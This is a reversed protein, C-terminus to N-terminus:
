LYSFIYGKTHPRKGQCVLSVKPESLCLDKAAHRISDYSKGTNLCIVPTSNSQKISKLWKSDGDVTKYAKKTHIRYGNYVNHSPKYQDILMAELSLGQGETLNEHVLEMYVSGREFKKEGLHDRLRKFLNQSTCGVYIINSSEKLRVLYVKYNLRNKNREKWYLSTCPKCENRYGDKIIKSVHFKDLPMNLNCVKCKKM